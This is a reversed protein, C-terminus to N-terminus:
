IKLVVMVMVVVLNGGGAALDKYCQSSAKKSEREELNQHHVRQLFSKIRDLFTGRSFLLSFSFHVIFGFLLLLFLLLMLLSLKLLCLLLPLLLLPLLLPFLLLAVVLSVVLFVVLSVIVIRSPARGLSPPRVPCHSM